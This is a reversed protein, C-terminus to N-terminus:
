RKNSDAWDWFAQVNIYLRKGIKRIVKDRFGNTNHFDYQRLAGSTPFDYYDNWRSLPILKPPLKEAITNEKLIEM